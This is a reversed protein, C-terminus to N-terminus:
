GIKILLRDTPEGVTSFKEVDIGAATAAERIATNNWSQRAKVASWTVAIDGSKIKRVGHERLREKIANQMVRVRTTATEVEEEHTKLNRALEAITFAFPTDVEAIDGPVATREHGCRRAFPCYECEKGGAIWGEPPLQDFSSATLIKEARARASDFIDRDYQLAFTRVESWWSADTYTLLAFSPQYTTKIRILGLQVQIQFEHEPKPKALNIRPDATKCEVLFAQSKGIDPILPALVDRPQEIVLGDPTASLYKDAFTIQQVGGYKLKKGFRRRLAPVWFASEFITGRLKAGWNDSYDPDPDAGTKVWWTKRACQGIESAGITRNRDKSFIRETAKVHQSFIDDIVTSM